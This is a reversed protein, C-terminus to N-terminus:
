YTLSKITKRVEEQSLSADIVVVRSPDEKAISLFGNRVKQHFEIKEGEIRDLVAQNRSFRVRNLGIVPDLDFVFTIDPKLNDSAIANLYVLKEIDFGRAYGQYAIHSDIYRDCLVTIGKELAPKIVTQVHHSRDALYLFMEALDSPKDKIEPNLILNRIESGLESGGPQRTILVEQGSEKILDALYQIQTTKGAGEVGEFTIFM